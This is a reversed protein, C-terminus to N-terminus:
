RRTVSASPRIAQALGMQTITVSAWALAYAAAAGALVWAYGWSVAVIAALVSSIVSACGNIAWAWPILGSAGGAPQTGGEAVLFRLGWPFPIGLLLGLPALSVAAVGLRLAFSAGLTMGFLADLLSPYVVALCAVALLVWHGRQGLRASVLSGVGSAVLLACLVIAMAYVPRGLFLIYRQVMPIEVFLFGLGLLGFYALRAPASSTARRMTRLGRRLLLPLLILVGSTLVAVVLLVVLVLYGAGGFPQWSKGLNGVITRVQSWRFFHFFFPRDDASPSIDFPQEPLSAGTLLARYAEFHRTDPLVVFRNAEDARMGPYYVPDYNMQEWLRRLAAIDENSFPGRQVLLTVTQFSRYAAIHSALDAVGAKRLAAAALNAARLDESPPWQAWRTVVLLGGPALHEYYAAFAEVTYLYNESLSFDGSTVARFSEALSVVIVDFHEACRALFSRGSDTVVAVRRDDYISAAGSERAVAIVLPNAEVATVSAAQHRLAVLVDLGTGAQLVLARAGPRLAFPIASPLFGAYAAPASDPPTSPVTHLNDGDVTLGPQAPVQGKFTLSLGPASRVAPGEVLDVRSFANWRSLVHRSGQFSSVISLAKYPSLRVSFAAPPRLALYLMAADVVVLVGLCLSLGHAKRGEHRRPSRPLPPAGGPHYAFTATALVGMAAVLFPTGGGGTAPLAVLALLCGTGSGALNAGYLLGTREPYISLLAGLAFGSCFFPAALVLIYLSLWVFQVRDMLLRYADFPIANTAPYLLCSTVAFGLAAVTIRRLGRGPGAVALFSGSAGFGLLAVAIAMFAFHYWQTLSFLRTLAIELVLTAASLLFVGIYMM